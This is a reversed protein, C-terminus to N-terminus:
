KNPNTTTTDKRPEERLATKSRHPEATSLGTIVRFASAMIPYLSEASREMPGSGPKLDVADNYRLLERNLGDLDPLSQIILGWHAPLYHRTTKVAAGLKEDTEGPLLNKSIAEASAVAEKSTPQSTDFTVAFPDQAANVELHSVGITSLAKAM